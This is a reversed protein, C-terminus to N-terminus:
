ADGAGANDVALSKAESSVAISTAVVRDVNCLLGAYAVLADGQLVAMVDLQAVKGDEFAAM